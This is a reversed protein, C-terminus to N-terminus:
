FWNGVQQYLSSVEKAIEKQAIGLDTYLRKLQDIDRKVKQILKAKHYYSVEQPIHRFRSNEAQNCFTCLRNVDYRYMNVVKALFNHEKEELGKGVKIDQLSRAIVVNHSQAFFSTLGIGAVCLLIIKNKM